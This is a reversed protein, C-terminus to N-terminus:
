VVAPISSAKTTMKTSGAPQITWFKGAEEETVLERYHRFLVGVSNGLELAVKAADQCEALWYSAASHRLVDKPWVKFGMYDRLRRLFRRRTSQPLPLRSKSKLALQMWQLASPMLHVIRRQRVKSAAADVTVTGTDLNIDSWQIRDAEEPRLGALMALVLWGLFAMEQHQAFDLAKAAQAVTLITPPQHEVTVRELRSCPNDTVYGRKQAFSFLTSIRSIASARMSPKYKRAELWRDVDSPRFEDIFRTERGRVFMGLFFRLHDVYNSRRGAASKAAVLQDIVDQISKRELPKALRKYQEWVDRLRLGSASIESFVSVLENREGADLALWVDGAKRQQIRVSEAEAEAGAKTQFFRRKRSGDKPKWSVMWHPQGRLRMKTISVKM